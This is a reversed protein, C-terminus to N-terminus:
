DRCSGRSRSISPMTVDSRLTRSLGASEDHNAMVCRGIPPSMASCDSTMLANVSANTMEHRGIVRLNDRVPGTPQHPHDRRQQYEGAVVLGVLSRHELLEDHRDDHRCRRSSPIALRMLYVHIPRTARDEQIKRHCHMPDGDMFEFRDPLQWKAFEQALHERLENPSAEAGARLSVVALPREGWRDDPIAIVAAQAVAPHCMLRNELDVSSIWEGGSKVLDKSRDCIRICGHADIRVM